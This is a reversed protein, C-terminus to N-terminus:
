MASTMFSLPCLLMIVDYRKVDYRKQRSVILYSILMTILLEEVLSM